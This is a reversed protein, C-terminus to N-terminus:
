FGLSVGARSRGIRPIRSLDSVTAGYWGFVLAQLLGGIATLMVSNTNNPTEFPVM